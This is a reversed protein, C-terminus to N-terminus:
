KINICSTMSLWKKNGLFLNWSILKLGYAMMSESMVLIAEM